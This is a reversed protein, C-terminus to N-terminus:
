ARMTIQAYDGAYTKLASEKYLSYGSKEVWNKISGYSPIETLGWSLKENLYRIIKSMCRLGCGSSAYLEVCISVILDTYKHREISSQSLPTCLM